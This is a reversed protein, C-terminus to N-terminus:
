ELSAHIMEPIYVTLDRGSSWYMNMVGCLNRFDVDYLVDYKRRVM